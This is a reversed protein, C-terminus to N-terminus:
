YAARNFNRVVRYKILQNTAEIIELQAGKYGIVNSDALDYEVNNNFAPRASNGSFERYGINIKDGVQGSYILTQQFSDAALVPLMFRVFEVNNKCVKANLTSVGCLTPKDVHVMMAQYPDTLTGKHVQGSGELSSPNYYEVNGERGEMLYHGPTFTYTGLTGVKVEEDLRIAAHERYTGQKLLEDGVYAVNVSGLPPESIDLAKARYNYEPTACASLLAFSSGLILFRLWCNM